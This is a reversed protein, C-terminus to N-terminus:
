LKLFEKIEAGKSTTVKVFYAGPLLGAVNIKQVGNKIYGSAIINGQINLIEYNGERDISNFKVEVFESAPNPSLMLEASKKNQFAVVNSEILETENLYVVKYYILDSKNVEVDEFWFENKNEDIVPHHIASWNGDYKLLKMLGKNFDGNIKWHLKCVGGHEIELELKIEQISLVSSLVLGADLDSLVDGEFLQVVDTTGYGHSHNVDSNVDQAVFGNMSTYGYFPPAEFKLYYSGTHARLNFHGEEDSYVEDVMVDQENYLKVKVEPIGEEGADQIGDRDVDLWIFNGVTSKKLIGLDLDDRQANSKVEFDVTRFQSGLKDFDSDLLSDIGSRYETISISDPFSVSLYHMGEPAHDFRYYGPNGLSDLKSITSKILRGTSAEILDIAIGNVGIENSQQIGDGNSDEWVYDGIMGYPRIMGADVVTSIKGPFVSFYLEGMQNVDSDLDEDVGQDQPSFSFNKDENVFKIQYDGPAFQLFEYQGITDTMVSDLLNNQDDYLFVKVREIETEGSNRIGNKDFDEWVTGEIKRCNYLEFFAPRESLAHCKATSKLYQLVENLRTGLTLFSTADFYDPSLPDNQYVLEYVYFRGSRMIDTYLSDSTKLIEQGSDSILIFKRSFGPPLFEIGNLAYRVRIASGAYCPSSMSLDYLDPAKALCEEYIGADIKAQGGGPLSLLESWGFSDVDSDVDPMSGSGKKSFVYGAMPSLFIRYELAPTKKEFFYHGNFDTKISDIIKRSKDTLYILYDKFGQEGLDQIGNKNVDRWVLGSMGICEDVVFSVGKASISACKQERLILNGLDVLTTTGLSLISLDLFNFGDQKEEFCLAYISYVGPKDIKFEPSDSIESIKQTVGTVLLYKVVYNVPHQHTGIATARISQVGGSYCEFEMPLTRLSALSINCNLFLGADVHMNNGMAPTFLDTEGTKNVDSDTQEFGSADKLTYNYDPLYKFAISYRHTPNLKVFVYKGMSDTRVSDIAIGFEDKLCVLVDPISRDKQDQIGDQGYDYWARGSISSCERITVVTSAASINYCLQLSDLDNILKQVKSSGPNISHFDFYNFSGKTGDYIMSRCYYNGPQDVQFFPFSNISVIVGDSARVLFYTKEFGPNLPPTSAPAFLIQIPEQDLCEPSSQIFILEPAQDKCDILFGADLKISQGQSVLFYDTFHDLNFDNDTSDPGSDKKSLIFEDSLFIRLRYKGSSQSINLCYNGNDASRTSDLIQSVSDLLYILADKVLTEKVDRQGDQNRDYWIKGCVSSSKTLGLDVDSRMQQFGVSFIESTFNGLFDNDKASNNGARFQTVAYPDSSYVRIYYDGPLVKSFSYRGNLDSVVSDLLVASTNLLYFKIGAIGREHADQIGDADVDEWVFDGISSYQFFGADVDTKQQGPALYFMPTSGTGFVNELDSDLSSNNGKFSSTSILNGPAIFKLYYYGSVLSDFKFNGSIDTLVSRIYKKTQGDYLLVQTSSIGPENPDQIGNANDDRWVRDGVSARSCDSNLFSLCCLDSLGAASETQVCVEHIGYPLRGINLGIFSQNVENSIVEAGTPIKWHYQTANKVPDVYFFSCDKMCMAPMAQYYIVLRVRDLNLKVETNGVNKVQLKFGFNSSNVDQLSPKLNWVDNVGGHKWLSDANPRTANWQLAPLIAAKNEGYNKGNRDTLQLQVLNLKGGTVNGEFEIAIGYIKSGEPLNLNFDRFWLSSSLEGSKLILQCYEQDNYAVNSAQSFGVQGTFPNSEVVQPRLVISGTTTQHGNKVPCAKPLGPNQATLPLFLSTLVTTFVSCLLLKHGFNLCKSLM